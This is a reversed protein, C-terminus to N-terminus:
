LDIELAFLTGTEVAQQLVARLAELSAQVEAGSWRQWGSSPLSDLMAEIARM